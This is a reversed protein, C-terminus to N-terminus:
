STLSMCLPFFDVMSTGPSGFSLTLNIAHDALTLFSDNKETVRHGYTVMAITGGILRVLCHIFRKELASIRYRKIHEQLEDASGWINRHFIVLEEKFVTQYSRVAKKGLFKLTLRRQKRWREGYPLLVLTKTWGMSRFKSYSKLAIM